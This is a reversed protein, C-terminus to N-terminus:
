MGIEKRLVVGEVEERYKNGVGGGVDKVDDLDREWMWQVTSGDVGVVRMAVREDGVWCEELKGMSGFALRAVANEAQVRMKECEVACMRRNTMRMWVRIDHSWPARLDASFSGIKSLRLTQLHKLGESLTDIIFELPAIYAHAVRLALSRLNPLKHVLGTIELPTWRATAAFHTIRPSIRTNLTPSTHLPALSTIIDIYRQASCNEGDEIALHNLNPCHSVLFAAESTVVLNQVTPLIFVTMDGIQPDEFAATFIDVSRSMMSMELTRLKSMKQMCRFLNLADTSSIYSGSCWWWMSGFMDIKLTQAHQYILPNPTYQSLPKNIYVSKFLYPTILHHLRHNVLSLHKIPTFKNHAPHQLHDCVLFIIDSCLDALTFKPPSLM